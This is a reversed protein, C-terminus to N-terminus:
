RAPELRRAVEPTTEISELFRPEIRRQSAQEYAYGLSLILADSWKPGIFSLGVPLGRVQGMPVTLHPYGAVAALSGGGGGPYQDGHVTDILWAAPMTPGVLATLDHERLLRDIGDPGALRLSTERARRYDGDLGPMAEAQEFLDQGFLALEIDAHERNFAILDALTRTRVNPPLTALYANMDAKLERLLVILENRGIQPRGEFETIEVLLAGQARLDALAEEFVADTGFGAAFRMVGLRVGRLADPSLSAAYDVRRADAEATAPDAPDNGAIAGLVLAADRVTRTMPGPTDQSHSIPVVHTRSVLGVSPKFGVIGNISAPCTISGDTETGIAAPVLGAAVAAASGSSSGCPNRDLAHPNRSQGGVASWGSISNNSRINAWESLNAKGVIVAGAARLRAVLPADRGTVNAALALSGATTPLPGATEINDKILIPMGFLPGRARRIRDLTRAQDLATPDVALVANLRPNLAEIRELAHRTRAEASTAGLVIASTRPPPAPQAAACASLLLSGALLCIRLMM